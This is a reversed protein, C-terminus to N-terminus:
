KPKTSPTTKSDRTSFLVGDKYIFTRSSSETDSYSGVGLETVGDSRASHVAYLKKRLDYILQGEIIKERSMAWIKYSSTKDDYTVVTNTPKQNNQPYITTVIYKGQVTKCTLPVEEEFSRGDEYKISISITANTWVPGVAALKSNLPVNDGATAAIENFWAVTVSAQGWVLPLRVLLFFIGILATKMPNHLWFNSNNTFTGSEQIRTMVEPTVSKPNQIRRPRNTRFSPGGSVM